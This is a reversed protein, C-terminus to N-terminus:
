DLITHAVKRLKEKAGKRWKKVASCSVNEKDAIEQVTLMDCFTYLVWKKQNDTLDECYPLLLEKGNFMYDSHEDKVSGWFAEKPHVNREENQNEKTMETLMKGKIYAYAFSSFAGKGPDFRERAEWLAILGTQYFENKNKYISLSNMIQHIMPEFQKELAEFNEM